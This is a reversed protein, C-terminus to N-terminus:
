PDPLPRGYGAQRAHDLLAAFLQKRGRFLRSRLTGVPCGAAAAAEEYTMEEVDVLLVAIRFEERLAGLAREVDPSLRSDWAGPVEDSAALTRRFREELEEISVTPPRRRAKHYQNIHISYMITFLWTRANTGVRFNDFTRYARLYTEQVLDAADAADRKLRLAANYLREMYPLAAAEFAARRQAIDRERREM